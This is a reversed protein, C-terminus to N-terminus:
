SPGDVVVEVGPLCCIQERSDCVNGVCSQNGSSGPIDLMLVFVSGDLVRRGATRPKM